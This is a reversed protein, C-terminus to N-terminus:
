ARPQTNLERTACFFFFFFLRAYYGPTSLCSDKSTKFGTSQQVQFGYNPRRTDHGSSDHPSINTKTEASPPVFGYFCGSKKKPQKTSSSITCKKEGSCVEM